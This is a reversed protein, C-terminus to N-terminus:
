FNGRCRFSTVVINECTLILIHQHPHPSLPNGVNNDLSVRTNAKIANVTHCKCKQRRVEGDISCAVLLHITSCSSILFSNYNTKPCIYIAIKNIIQWDCITIWMLANPSICSPLMLAKTVIVWTNSPVHKGICASISHKTSAIKASLLKM